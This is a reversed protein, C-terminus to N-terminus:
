LGMNTKELDDHSCLFRLIYKGSTVHGFCIINQNLMIWMFLIKLYFFKCYLCSIYKIHIKRIDRTWFMYYKSKADDVYVSNTPLFVQLLSM